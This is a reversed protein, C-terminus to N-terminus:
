HDINTQRMSAPHFRNPNIPPFIPSKPFFLLFYSKKHFNMIFIFFIFILKPRSLRHDRLWEWHIWSFLNLTSKLIQGSLRKGVRLSNIFLSKYNSKLIWGPLREDVWLSGVIFFKMKNLLDDHGFFVKIRLMKM